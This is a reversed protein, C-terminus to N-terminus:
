PRNKLLIFDLAFNFSEFSEWRLDPNGVSAGDEEATIVVGGQTNAGDGYIYKIDLDHDEIYVLLTDIVDGVDVLAADRTQSDYILYCNTEIPGTVQHMIKLEPETTSCSFFIALLFAILFPKAPKM